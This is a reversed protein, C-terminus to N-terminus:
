NPKILELLKSQEIEYRITRDKVLLVHFFIDNDSDPSRYHEVIMMKNPALNYFNSAFSVIEVTAAAIENNRNDDMNTVVVIAKEWTIWFIRIRCQNSKPSQESQWRFVTDIDGTVTAELNDIETKRIEFDDM